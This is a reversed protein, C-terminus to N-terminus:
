SREATAWPSGTQVGDCGARTLRTWFIKLTPNQHTTPSCTRGNLNAIWWHLDSIAAPSLVTLYSNSSHLCPKYLGQLGRIHACSYKVASVAWNLSGLLSAVESVTTSKKSLLRHCRVVISELKERPLSFSMLRSDMVLGLLVFCQSPELVMDTCKSEIIEFGLSELLLKTTQAADRAESESSAM